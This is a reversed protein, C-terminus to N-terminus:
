EIRGRLWSLLGKTGEREWIRRQPVRFVNGEVLFVDLPMLGMEAPLRGIENDRLDLEELKWGPVDRNGRFGGAVEQFGSLDDIKNGRLRLHRLGARTPTQLLLLSLTQPTFSSSTLLNYSLNLTRLSPFLKALTPLLPSSTRPPTTPTTGNASAGGGSGSGIEQLQVPVTDDFNCGELDLEELRPLFGSSDEQPISPVLFSRDLRRNTLVLVRLTDAFPQALIISLPLTPAPMALEESTAKRSLSSSFSASPSALSFARAHGPGKAPPASSPLTLTDTGKNYFKPNNLINTASPAEPEPTPEPPKIQAEAAAAARARRRAGETLLGQEAEIVWAEKEVEKKPTVAPQSRSARTPTPTAAPPPSVPKRKPPEPDWDGGLDFGKRAEKRQELEIEWAEKIVRKGVLIRFVGEPPEDVVFDHNLEQSMSKFTEKVADLTVQTESLDLIKLVPFPANSFLDSPISDNGIGAKEFRLEKLRPLTSLKKLLADSKGVPNSSLDFKVLSDPIALDISSSTIRNHSVDLNILKPLPTAARVIAPTFFDTSAYSNPGTRSGTSKFPASFPISTLKNHALNLTTLEPLAWLNEPLEKIENYSLDLVTLFSLDAITDPLSAIDLTKLSGFMSIEHQIEIIENNWAKLVTLDQAEFWAPAKGGRRPPAQPDSPPLKPEDTSRSKEIAERLPLRGLLDPEEEVPRVPLADELSGLDDLGGKKPTAQAKKAEARKLAIAEKISLAPKKEVEPESATPSPRRPKPKTPSASRSIPGNKAVSSPTTPTGLRTRTPTSPPKLPSRTSRAPIRSSM